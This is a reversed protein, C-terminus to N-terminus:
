TQMGAITSLIRFTFLVIYDGLIRIRVVVKAPISYRLSIFITNSSISISLIHLFYASMIEIYHNTSFFTMEVATTVVITLTGIRVITSRM